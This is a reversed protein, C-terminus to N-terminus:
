IAERERGGEGGGLSSRVRVERVRRRAREMQLTKRRGRRGVNRAGGADETSNGWRAIIRGGRRAVKDVGAGFESVHAAVDVEGIRCIPPGRGPMRGASLVTSLSARAFEDFDGAREGDGEMARRSVGLTWAHRSGDDV